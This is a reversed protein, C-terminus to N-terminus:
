YIAKLRYGRQQLLHLVGNDGPLHLAGIAILANGERFRVEMRDAMRVNRDNILNKEMAKALGRETNGMQEDSIRQLGALDRQIYLQTLRKIMAPMNKHERLSQDLMAIQQQQTLKEFVGMQEAVTELGYVAIGRAQAQQFLKLDLFVGTTPKPMMLQAAIAWPKMRAVLMEPMGSQSMLEVAKDYRQQGIISKLDQDLPLMMQTQAELMAGLDLDLEATFSQVKLMVMQVPPPITTVAPDDSHITGLVYSPQNYKGSVEWLVGKSFDAAQSQTICLLCFLTLPLILLKHRAIRQM